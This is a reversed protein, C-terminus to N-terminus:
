FHQALMDTVSWFGYSFLSNIVEASSISISDFITILERAKKNETMDGLKMTLSEPNTKMYKFFYNRLSELEMNFKTTEVTTKNFEQKLDENVQEFTTRNATTFVEDMVGTENMIHGSIRVYKIAMTEANSWTTNLQDALRDLTEEYKNFVETYRETAYRSYSLLAPITRVVELLTSNKADFAYMAYADPYIDELVAEILGDMVSDYRLENEAFLDLYEMVEKHTSEKLFTNLNTMEEETITDNLGEKVLEEKFLTFNFTNALIESFISGRVTEHQCFDGTFEKACVCEFGFEGEECKGGNVCQYDSNNCNMDMVVKELKEFEKFERTMNMGTEYLEELSCIEHFQDWLRGEPCQKIMGKGWPNCEVYKTEDNPHPKYYQFKEGSKCYSHSVFDLVDTHKQQLYLNIKTLISRTSRYQPEEEITSKPLTTESIMVPEETTTPGTTTPFTTTPITKTEYMKEEVTAKPLTTESISVPEGVLEEELEFFNLEETTTPFTTTALTTTEYKMEEVTSKPLTTETIITPEEMHEYGRRMKTLVKAFQERKLELEETRTQNVVTNLIHEDIKQTLNTIRTEWLNLSDFLHSFKQENLRVREMLQEVSVKKMKIEAEMSASKNTMERLESELRTVEIEEALVQERVTENFQSGILKVRETIPLDERALEMRLTLNATENMFLATETMNMTDVIKKLIKEAKMETEIGAKQLQKGSLTQDLLTLEEKELHEHDNELKEKLDFLETEMVMTQNKLMNLEEIDREIEFENTKNFLEPILPVSELVISTNTLKEFEPIELFTELELPSELELQTLPVSAAM